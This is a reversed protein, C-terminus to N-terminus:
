ISRDKVLKKKTIWEDEKSIRQTNIGTRQVPNEQVLDTVVMMEGGRIKPGAISPRCYDKSPLLVSTGDLIHDQDWSRFVPIRDMFRRAPILCM